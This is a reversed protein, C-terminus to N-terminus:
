RRWEEMLLRLAKRGEVTRFGDYEVPSKCNEQIEMIARRANELHEKKYKMLTLEYLASYEFDSNEGDLCAEIMSALERHTLDDFGKGPIKVYSKFGLMRLMRSVLSM